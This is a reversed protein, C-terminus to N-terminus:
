NRDLLNKHIQLPDGEQILWDGWKEQAWENLAEIAGALMLHHKRALLKADAESWRDRTIIEEFFPRFRPSLSVEEAVVSGGPSTVESSTLVAASPLNPESKASFVRPADEALEDEDIAMAEKLIAAVAQTDRMIRSIAHTDLHFERPVDSAPNVATKGGAPAATGLPILLTELQEGALDLATFIRRLRTLEPHTITLDAAAVGVLYEGIVLRQRSTLRKQLGTFIKAPDPKTHLLLGRLSELRKTQESGLQFQDELHRGIQALERQDVIGDAEAVYLGLQLLSAAAQYTTPEQPEEGEHFFLTVSEDWRYNRGTLRSDPEIGIGLCDATRLLTQCHSKLLAGREEMGKLGALRPIPVIPVGEDNVCDQWVAFWAGFEPHEGTRLEEPLSEFAAASQEGGRRHARDYGRLEEICENWIEVLPKFQSSLALVDPMKGFGSEQGGSSQLLTPSAPRYSLPATRLSARLEMGAPFRSGFKKGFLERFLKEHRRMVATSPTRSDRQAVVFAMDTSLRREKEHFYALCRGLCDDDWRHTMAFIREVLDDSLLKRKGDMALILWLLSNAYRQFSRNAAYAARLRLIEGAVADQDAADVLIRRELGYFYIFVYGIETSPDCRGSCLWDLYRSRQGPSAGHYSPWYPLEQPDYNGPAAVPLSGDILSADFAGHQPLGTAYVLASPLRGRDLELETGPGYFEVANGALQAGATCLTRQPTRRTAFPSLPPRPPITEGKRSPAWADSRPRSVPSSVPSPGSFQLSTPAAETGQAHVHLKSKEPHNPSPPTSPANTATSSYQNPPNLMNQLGAQLKPELKRVLQELWDAVWARKWVAIEVVIAFLLLFTSVCAGIWISLAMWAVFHGVGIACALAVSQLWDPPAAPDHEAVIAPAVLGGRCKPCQLTQGAFVPDIQLSQQCHPCAVLSIQTSM